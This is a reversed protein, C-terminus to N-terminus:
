EVNRLFRNDGDEYYPVKYEMLPPFRRADVSYSDTEWSIIMYGSSPPPLNGRFMVAQRGIYVDDSRM